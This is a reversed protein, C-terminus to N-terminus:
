ASPEEKELSLTFADYRLPCEAPPAGLRNVKLNAADPHNCFVDDDSALPCHECDKIFMFQM